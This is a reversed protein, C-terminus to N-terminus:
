CYALELNELLFNKINHACKVRLNPVSISFSYFSLESYVTHLYSFFRHFFSYGSCFFLNIYSLHGLDLGM